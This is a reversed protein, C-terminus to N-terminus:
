VVSKRDKHCSYGAVRDVGHSSAGTCRINKLHWYPWDGVSANFTICNTLAEEGADLTVCAFTGDGITLNYGILAVDGDTTGPTKVEGIASSLGHEETYNTGTNKLWGIADVGHTDLFKGISKFPNEESLGDNLTDDGIVNNIYYNTTAM